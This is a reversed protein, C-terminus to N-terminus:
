PGPGIQIIRQQLKQTVRQLAVPQTAGRGIIIPNDRNTWAVADPGIGAQESDVVIDNSIFFRDGNRTIRALAHADDLTVNARLQENSARVGIIFQEIRGGALQMLRAGLLAYGTCVLGRVGVAGPTQAFLDDVNTATLDTMNAVVRHEFYASAYQQYASRVNANSQAALATFYDQMDTQAPVLSTPRGLRTEMASRVEIQSNIQRAADAIFDLNPNMIGGGFIRDLDDGPMDLTGRM